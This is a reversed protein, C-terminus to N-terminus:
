STRRRKLVKGLLILALLMAGVVVDQWYTSIGSTAFAMYIMAIFLVGLKSGSPPVPGATSIRAVSLRSRLSKSKELLPIRGLM